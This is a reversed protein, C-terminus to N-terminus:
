QQRAITVRGTAGDTVYIRRSYSEVDIAYPAGMVDASPNKKGGVKLIDVVKGSKTDFGILGLSSHAVYLTRGSVTMGQLRYIDMPDSPHEGLAAFSGVRSIKAPDTADLVVVESPLNKDFWYEPAVYLLRRKKTAIVEVEALGMEGWSGLEVPAGPDSIDFIQVGTKGTTVYMLPAGTAPDKRDIYIGASAPGGVKLEPLADVHVPVTAGTAPDFRYVALGVIADLLYIWGTGGKEYYGVRFAGGAPLYAHLSPTEPDSVDLIHLGDKSFRHTQRAYFLWKGDDSFALDGDYSDPINDDYSGLTRPKDPDSMDLMTVVGEDRALVAGQLKHFEIRGLGAEDSIAVSAVQKLGCQQSKAKLSPRCAPAAQLSGAFFLACLAGAVSARKPLEIM